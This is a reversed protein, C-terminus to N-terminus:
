EFLTQLITLINRKENITLQKEKYYITQSPDNLLEYLYIPEKKDVSRKDSTLYIEAFQKREKIEEKSLQNLQQLAEDYKLGLGEFLAKLVHTTPNKRYNNELQSIYAPSVGTYKALQRISLNKAERKQRLFRGIQEV